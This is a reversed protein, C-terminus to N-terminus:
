VISVLRRCIKAIIIVCCPCPEFKSKCFYHILHCCDFSSSYFFDFPGTSQWRYRVSISYLFATNFSSIFLHLLSSHCSILLIFSSTVRPMLNGFVSQKRDVVSSYLVILALKPLVYFCCAVCISRSLVGTYNKSYFILNLMVAQPYSIM